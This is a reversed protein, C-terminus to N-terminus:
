EYQQVKECTTVVSNGCTSKKEKQTLQIVLEYLSRDTTNVYDCSGSGSGSGGDDLRENEHEHEHGHEHGHENENEYNHYGCNVNTMLDDLLDSGAYADAEEVSAYSDGPSSSARHGATSYSHCDSGETADSQYRESAFDNGDGGYPLGLLTAAANEASNIKM